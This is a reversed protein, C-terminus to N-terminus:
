MSESSRAETERKIEMARQMAQANLSPNNLVEQIRDEGVVATLWLVQSQMQEVTIQHQRYHTEMTERHRMEAQNMAETIMNQAQQSMQAQMEVVAVERDRIEEEKQHVQSLADAVEKKMKTVEEQRKAEIKRMMADEEAEWKAVELSGVGMSDKLMKVELPDWQFFECVHNACKYFHRGKTKGEKKVTLRQAPKKCNCQMAEPVAEKVEKANPNKASVMKAAM